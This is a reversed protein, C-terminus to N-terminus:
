AAGPPAPPALIPKWFGASWGATLWYALGGALGAALIYFPEALPVSDGSLHPFLANGAFASVAGNGIHFLWSRVAFVESFLVGIAGVMWMTAVLFMVLLTASLLADMVVFIAHPDAPLIALFSGIRWQGFLIVLMGTTLAAIFGVPVLVLRLLFRFLNDM